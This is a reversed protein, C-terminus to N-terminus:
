HTIGNHEMLATIWYDNEKEIFSLLKVAYEEKSIRENMEKANKVNLSQFILPLLFKLSLCFFEQKLIKAIKPCEKEIIPIIPKLEKFVDKFLIM